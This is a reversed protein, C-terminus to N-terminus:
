FELGEGGAARLRLTTPHGAQETRIVVPDREDKRANAQEVNVLRRVTKTTVGAAEAVSAQTHEEGDALAALILDWTTTTQNETSETPLEWLGGGVTM